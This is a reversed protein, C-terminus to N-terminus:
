WRRSGVPSYMRHAMMSPMIMAFVVPTGSIKREPTAVYSNQSFSPMTRSPARKTSLSRSRKPPIERIRTTKSIPKESTKMVMSPRQNLSRGLSMERSAIPEDM